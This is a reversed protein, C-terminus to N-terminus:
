FKQRESRDQDVMKVELVEGHRGLGYALKLLLTLFCQGTRFNQVDSKIDVVDQAHWLVGLFANNLM